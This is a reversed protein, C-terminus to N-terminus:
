SFPENRTRTAGRPEQDDPESSRAPHQRLWMLIDKLARAQQLRLEQGEEGGVVEVEFEFRIEGRRM